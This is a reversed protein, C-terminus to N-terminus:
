DVPIRIRSKLDNLEKDMKQIQSVLKKVHQHVDSEMEKQLQENNTELNTLRVEIIRLRDEIYELLKRESTDMFPGPREM